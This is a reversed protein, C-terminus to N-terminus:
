RHRDGHQRGSSLFRSFPHQRLGEGEADKGRQNRTGEAEEPRQEKVIYSTSFRTNRLTTNAHRINTSPGKKIEVARLVSREQRDLMKRQGQRIKHARQIARFVTTKALGYNNVFHPVTFLKDENLHAHYLESIICNRDGLKLNRLAMTVPLFFRLFVLYFCRFSFPVKVFEVSSTVLQPPCPVLLLQHSIGMQCAIGSKNENSNYITATSFFNM